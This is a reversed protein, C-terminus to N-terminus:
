TAPPNPTSVAPVPRRIMRKWAVRAVVGGILLLPSWPLLAVLLLVLGEGVSVLERWSGGFTDGVRDGFTPAASPQDPTYPSEERATFQVTALESMTTLYKLRGEAREIDLRVSKIQDRTKIYGDVNNVTEKLFKNLTEEEAKLNKIRGELDIYEETVDQSDSSNKAVMGMEALGSVVTRFKDAPIKLTWTATRRTGATGSVDSKAIYGKHADTLEEVEKRAEDVSRVVVEVAASYIVKRSLPEEGGVPKGVVGGRGGDAPPAPAAEAAADSRAKVSQSKADVSGTAPKSMPAAGGCGILAALVVGGLLVRGRM